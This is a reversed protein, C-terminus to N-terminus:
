EGGAVYISGNMGAVGAEARPEPMDPITSTFWTDTALDYEFVDSQIEGADPTDSPASGGVVYLSGETAAGTQNLRSTPIDALTKWGGPVSGDLVEAAGGGGGSGISDVM